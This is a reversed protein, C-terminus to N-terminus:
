LILLLSFVNEKLLCNLIYLYVDYRSLSAEESEIVNMDRSSIISSDDEVVTYSDDHAFVTQPTQTIIFIFSFLMLLKRIKNTYCMIIGKQSFNGVIIAKIAILNILSM